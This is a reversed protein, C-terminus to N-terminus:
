GKLSFAGSMLGSGASRTWNARLWRYGLTPQNFIYDNHGSGLSHSVNPYSALNAWSQISASGVTQRLGSTEFNTGPDNSVQLALSGTVTSGTIHFFASVHEIRRIDVIQGPTSAGLNFAVSSTAWHNSGSLARVSRSNRM